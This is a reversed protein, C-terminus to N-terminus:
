SSRSPFSLRVMTGLVALNLGVSSETKAEMALSAMARSRIACSGLCCAASYGAVVLFSNPHILVDDEGFADADTLCCARATDDNDVFMGEIKLPDVSSTRPLNAVFGLIASTKCSKWPGAKKCRAIGCPHGHPIFVSELLETFVVLSRGHRVRWALVARFSM